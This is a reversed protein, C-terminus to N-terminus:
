LFILCPREGYASRLLTAIADPGAIDRGLFIIIATITAVYAALLLYIVVRRYCPLFFSQGVNHEHLGGM